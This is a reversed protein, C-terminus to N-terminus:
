LVDLKGRAQNYKSLMVRGLAEYASAKDIALIKYELDTTEIRCRQENQCFATILEQWAGQMDRLKSNGEGAEDLGDWYDNPKARNTFAKITLTDKNIRCCIM